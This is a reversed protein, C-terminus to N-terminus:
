AAELLDTRGADRLLQEYRPFTPEVLPVLRLVKAVPGKAKIDGRALAVTVNVKGLWFGHATDAAMDMEVEPELDSPGLDVRMETDPRMDVTIQSDPDRMKFRVTTDARQFKPALEPDTALEQLLRGIFQYVDADDKFRGL